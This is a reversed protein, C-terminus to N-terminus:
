AVEVREFRGHLGTPGARWATVTEGAVILWLKGDAAAMAADTSSPTADGSPHSHWYGIVRDGGAREAQLAAILAAPDIEFRRAPDDSVNAIVSAREVAGDGFLLGCAELPAADAAAHHILAIVCSSIRLAM